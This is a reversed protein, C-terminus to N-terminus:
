KAKLVEIVVPANKVLRSIVGGYYRTMKGSSKEPDYNLLDSEMLPKVWNYSEESCEVIESGMLKGDPDCSAAVRVSGHITYDTLFVVMDKLNGQDDKGEYIRVASESPKWGTKAQIESRQAPTLRFDKVEYKLGPMLKQVVDEESALKVPPTVHGSCIGAITLFIVFTIAYKM